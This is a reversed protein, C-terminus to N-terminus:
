LIIEFGNEFIPETELAEFAGVDVRGHEVRPAGNFDMDGYNWDLHFPTPIPVFFPTGRGSNIEGSNLAPLYNMLGPQFEPTSSFNDSIVNFIGSSNYTLVNNNLLYRNTQSDGSLLVDDNTENNWFLNNAVFAGADDYVFLHLASGSTGGGGILLNDAVTNNIFYVGQAQNRLRVISRNSAHHNGYFLSNQVRIVAGDDVYLAAITNAQNNFFGVRNIMVEGTINTDADRGVTLGAGSTAFGNAFSLNTVTLNSNPELRIYMSRMSSNGDIVTDLPNNFSIGCPNGFFDYFGGTITLHHEESANFFYGGFTSGPGYYTGAAVRIVDDQGNSRAQDLANQLGQSTTACFEEAWGFQSVILGLLFCKIRTQKLM